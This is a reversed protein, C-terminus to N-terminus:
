LPRGDVPHFAGFYPWDEVREVLGARVPNQRIYKWKESMSEENRLIHDFFGAQWRFERRALMAKLAKIWAGLTVDSHASRAFLHLHDPMLVYCEVRWGYRQPSERIFDVFRQHVHKIAIVPNRDAVCLTLFYMPYGSDIWVRSLRRLRRPYLKSDKM